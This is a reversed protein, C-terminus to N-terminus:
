AREIFTNDPNFWIEDDDGIAYGIIRVINGSGPIVAVAEGATAHSLYLVRGDNNDGTDHDLTVMGRLLMGDVAPDPGLAVGLLQSSTNAADAQANTWTADTDLYCINGVAYNSGHATGLYVVDGQREYHTSSTKTFKRMPIYVNNDATCRMTQAESANGDTNYFVLDAGNESASWTADTVAEIRAGTTLTNSADEAGKFEIVGLRHGSAMAAGDDSALVLNGGETASSTTTDRITLETTDITTVGTVDIDLIGADIDVISGANEDGDIHIAQGATHASSITLLGDASTTSVTTDDAATFTANDAATITIDDAADITISATADIDLAGADINVVNDTDADADLHFVDGNIDAPTMSIKGDPDLILDAATASVDVTTFTTVGDEAVKINFYDADTGNTTTGGEGYITFNTINPSYGGHLRAALGHDNLDSSSGSAPDGIYFSINGFHGTGTSRGAYLSLDGGGLGSSHGSSASGAKIALNAGNGDTHSRRQFIFNTDDDDGLSVLKTSPTFSVDGEPALTMTARQGPEGSDEHTKITTVGEAEVEIRFYDDTDQNSLLTLTSVNGANVFTAYTEALLSSGGSSTVIRNDSADTITLDSGGLTTNKTVKGDSDVVLVNENSSTELNEFYVTTRFRSIFDWIHQGIWKM